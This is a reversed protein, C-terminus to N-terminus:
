ASATTGSCTPTSAFVARAHRPQMSTASRPWGGCVPFHLRHRMKAVGYSREACQELPLRRSAGAGRLRECQRSTCPEASRAAPGTGVPLRSQRARRRDRRFCRGSIAAQQSHFEHIGHLSKALVGRRVARDTRDARRAVSRRTYTGGDAVDQSYAGNFGLASEQFILGEVRPNADYREAAAKMMATYAQVVVPEWMFCTAAGNGDANLGSHQAQLYVPCPNKVPSNTFSKYEVFIWVQCQPNHSGHLRPLCRQRLVSFDYVGAGPEVENWTERWVVGTVGAQECLMAVDAPRTPMARPSITATTRRATPRLPWRSSRGPSPIYATPSASASKTPSPASTKMGPRAECDDRTPTSRLGRRSAPFPSTLRDGDPDTAEPLFEYVEGVVATRAPEGGIHPAINGSTTSPPTAPSPAQPPREQRTLLQRRAPRQRRTLPQRVKAGM